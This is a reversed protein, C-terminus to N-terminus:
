NNRIDRNRREKLWTGIIKETTGYTEKSHRIPYLEATDFFNVGRDLAYDMQQFGDIETNQEGFTMTGLCIRSVLLGSEGLYRYKM